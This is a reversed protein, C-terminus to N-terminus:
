AQATDSDAGGFQSIMIFPVEGVGSVNLVPSDGNLPIRVDEVTGQVEIPVESEGTDTVVSVEYDGPPIGYDAPNIDFDVTGPSQTGLEVSYDAGAEDTFHLTVSSAADDLTLRGQIEGDSVQMSTTQVMITDGVMNGLAMVQLNSLLIANTNMQVSMEESMAVQAMSSLQSIYESPDTPSTPDQNQVEAVFLTLFTDTMSTNTSSTTSASSAPASSTDTTPAADSSAGLNNSSVKQQDADSQAAGLASNFAINSM